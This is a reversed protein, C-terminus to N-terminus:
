NKLNKLCEFTYDTNCLCEHSSKLFVGEWICFASCRCSKQSFEESLIQHKLIKISSFHMSVTIFMKETILDDVVWCGCCEQKTKEVVM